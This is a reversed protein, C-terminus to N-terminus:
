LVFLKWTQFSEPFSGDMHITVNAKKKCFKLSLRTRAVCSTAHISLLAFNSYLSESFIQQM